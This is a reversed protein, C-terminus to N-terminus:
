VTSIFGASILDPNGRGSTWDVFEQQDHTCFLKVEDGHMARLTQLKRLSAQRDNASTQFAIEIPLGPAHEEFNIKSDFYADGAHLSWRGDERYAVGCHGLTHGSLPVLKAELDTPLQLSRVELDFWREGTPEYTKFKTHHSVQYPKYPGRPRTSDFNELEESSVHVTANPFDHLGGAHDNDMHTLIIDTVQEPRIGRERVMAFLRSATLTPYKQLTERIFPLYPDV